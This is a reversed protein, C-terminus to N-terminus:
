PGGEPIAYVSECGWRGNRRGCTKLYGCPAPCTGPDRPGRDEPRTARDEQIESPLAFAISVLMVAFVIMMKMSVMTNLYRFFHKDTHRHWKKSKDMSMLPPEPDDTIDMSVSTHQTTNHQTEKQRGM